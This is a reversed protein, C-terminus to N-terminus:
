IDSKLLCFVFSKEEKLFLLNQLFFFFFSGHGLSRHTETCQIMHMSCILVKLIVKYWSGPGIVKHHSSFSNSM